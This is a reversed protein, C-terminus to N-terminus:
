VKLTNRLLVYLAELHLVLCLVFLSIGIILDWVLAAQAPTLTNMIGFRHAIFMLLTSIFILDCFIITFNLYQAPTFFLIAVVGLATLLLWETGKDRHKLEHRPLKSLYSIAHVAAKFRTQWDHADHFAAHDSHKDPEPIENSM